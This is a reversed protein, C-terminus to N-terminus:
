RKNLISEALSFMKAQEIIEELQDSNLRSLYQLYDSETLTNIYTHSLDKIKKYISIFTLENHSSIGSNFLDLMKYFYHNYIEPQFTSFKDTSSDTKIGFMVYTCAKESSPTYNYIIQPLSKVINSLEQSNM